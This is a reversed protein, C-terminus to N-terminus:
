VVVCKSVHMSKMDLSSTQNHQYGISISFQLHVNDQHCLSYFLNEVIAMNVHCIRPMRGLWILVFHISEMALM